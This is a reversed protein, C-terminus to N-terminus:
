ANISLSSMPMDFLRCHRCLNYKRGRVGLKNQLGFTVSRSCPLGFIRPLVLARSLRLAMDVSISARGNLIASVTKRSVGIHAAMASAGLGLPALYDAYDVVTADGNEFRFVVRWNGSISASWVDFLTDKLRHLRSGPLNM